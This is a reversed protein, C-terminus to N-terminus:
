GKRPAIRSGSHQSLRPSSNRGRRKQKWIKLHLTFFSSKISSRGPLIPWCRQTSMEFSKNHFLFSLSIM